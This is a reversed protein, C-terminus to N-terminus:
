IFLLFHSIILLNPGSVYVHVFIFTNYFMNELISMLRVKRVYICTVMIEKALVHINLIEFRLDKHISFIFSTIFKM